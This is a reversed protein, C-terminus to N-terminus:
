KGSKQKGHKWRGKFIVDDGGFRFHVFINCVGSETMALLSASAAIRVGLRTMALLGCASAAIREKPLENKYASGACPVSQWPGQPAECHCIQCCHPRRGLTQSGWPVIKM